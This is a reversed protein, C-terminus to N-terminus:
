KTIPDIKVNPVREIVEMFHDEDELIPDYNGDLDEVNSRM